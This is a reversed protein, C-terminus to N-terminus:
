LLNKSNYAFERDLIGTAIEPPYQNLKCDPLCGCLYKATRKNPIATKNLGPLAGTILETNLFIKDVIYNAYSHAIHDRFSILLVLTFISKNETVCDLAEMRCPPFTANNTFGLPVCGCIEFFLRSRCEALCNIYSYFRMVEMKKEKPFLCDRESPTLQLVDPTSYTAEPTISIFNETKSSVLKAEANLGPYDYASNIFILFGYGSLFSAFYDDPIPNLLM